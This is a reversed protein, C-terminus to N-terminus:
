HSGADRPPAGRRAGERGTDGRIEAYRGTDGCIEGYRRLRPEGLERERLRHGAGDRAADDDRADRGEAAEVAGFHAHALAVVGLPEVQPLHAGCGVTAGAMVRM